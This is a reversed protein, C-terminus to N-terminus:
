MSTDNVEFEDNSIEFITEQECDTPANKSFDISKLQELKKELLKITAQAAKKETHIQFAHM